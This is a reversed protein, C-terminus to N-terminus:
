RLTKGGFLGFIAGCGLTFVSQVKESLSKIADSQPQQALYMAVALCVLTICVVSAFVLKFSQGHPVPQPNAAMTSLMKPSM